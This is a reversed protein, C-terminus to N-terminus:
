CTVGSSGFVLSVALPLRVDTEREIGLVSFRFPLEGFTAYGTTPLFSDSSVGSPAPSPGPEVSGCARLHVVLWLSSTGGPPLEFPHFDQTYGGTEDSGGMTAGAPLRLEVSSVLPGAPQQAVFRELDFSTVTLPLDGENLLDIGLQLQGGPVYAVYQEESGGGSGQRFGLVQSDGFGEWNAYTLPTSQAFQFLGCGVAVLAAATMVAFVRRLRARRSSLHWLGLWSWGGDFESRRAELWTARALFFLILLAAILPLCAAAVLLPGDVPVALVPGTRPWPGVPMAPLVIPSASPTPGLTTSSVGPNAAPGSAKRLVLAALVLVTAAAVGAIALAPRLLARIRRWPGPRDEAVGAIRMRLRDPAPGPDRENVWAKIEAETRRGFPAHPRPAM